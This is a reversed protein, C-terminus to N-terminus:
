LWFLLWVCRVSCSSTRSKPMSKISLELSPQPVCELRDWNRLLKLLCHTKTSRLDRPSPRDASQVAACSRRTRRSGTARLASWVTTTDVLFPWPTGCFSWVSPAVSSSRTSSFVLKKRQWRKCNLYFVSQVAAKHLSYPTQKHRGSNDTYSTTIPPTRRTCNSDSQVNKLPTVRKIFDNFRHQQQQKTIKIKVESFHNVAELLCTFSSLDFGPIINTTGTCTQEHGGSSHMIVHKMLHKQIRKQCKPLCLPHPYKYHLIHVFM